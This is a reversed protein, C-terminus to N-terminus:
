RANVSAVREVIGPLIEVVRDIEVEATLRSLSFRIQGQAVIPDIGMAALVHSPELSGSSCAAGSSACVGAESLLLLIPESATGEFCM